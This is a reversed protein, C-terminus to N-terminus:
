SEKKCEERLQAEMDLLMYSNVLKMDGVVELLVNFCMHQNQFYETRNSTLELCTSSKLNKENSILLDQVQKETGELCGAQNKLQEYFEEIQM